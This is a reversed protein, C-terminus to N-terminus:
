SGRTSGLDMEVFLTGSLEHTSNYILRPFGVINTTSIGEQEWFTNGRLGPHKILSWKGAEM